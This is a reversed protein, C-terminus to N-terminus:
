RSKTKPKTKAKTKTNKGAPTKKQDLQIGEKLMMMFAPQTVYSDATAQMQIQSGVAPPTRYPEAMTVTVEATNTEFGDATVALRLTSKDPAAIVKAVFPLAKGQLTNWVQQAGEQYGSTLIFIWKAFDMKEPPEKSLMEKAQDAPSPPPPAPTIRQALDAPPLKQQQAMAVLQDWGDEGGHYKRYHYKGLKVADAFQPALVATRAIFFLGTLQAEPTPPKAKLFALALPYVDQVNDPNLKVAELLPQQAANYDEKAIAAQGIAGHFVTTFLKKQNAFDADSMGEPKKWNPLATLGRQALQSAEALNQQVNQGKNAADRLLYTRVFVALVHNPNVQLLRQATEMMKAQNGGQQYAAMMAELVVEKAVSNPYQQLFSELAAAKQAPDTQRIASDYANFEAQDTIKLTGAQQQGTDPQPGAPPTQAYGATACILVAAFLFKTM